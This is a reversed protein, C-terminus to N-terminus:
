DSATDGEFAEELKLRGAGVGEALLTFQDFAERLEPVQRWSLWLLVFSTGEERSPRSIIGKLFDGLSPSLMTSVLPSLSSVAALMRKVEDRAVSLDEPSASDFAERLKRPDVMSASNSLIEEVEESNEFGFAKAIVETEESGSEPAIGGVIQYDAKLFTPFKEKGVNKRISRMSSDSLRGSGAEKLANDFAVSDDEASVLMKARVAELFRLQVELMRHATDESVAYGNWWLFWFADVLSRKHELRECLARVQRSSGSPYLVETGQGRGRGRQRPRPILGLRQWRRLKPRTVEFGAKTAVRM